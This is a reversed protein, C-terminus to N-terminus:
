SAKPRLSGDVLERLKRTARHLIGATAPTSKGLSEALQQLSMGEWYRLVIAQRQIEPLQDIADALDRDTEYRVAQQSPSSQDITLFDGLYTSSTGKVAEMSLERRIDRKKARLDRIAHAMNRVLIKRLWAIREAETLGLFQERAAHANLLTQQVIDSQGFKRAYRAPLHANALFQLYSCYNALEGIDKTDNPMKIM